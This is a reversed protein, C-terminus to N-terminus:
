KWEVKQVLARAEALLGGLDSWADMAPTIPGFGSVVSTVNVGAVSPYDFHFAAFEAQIAPTFMVEIFAQASPVSDATRLVGVATGNTHVPSGSLYHVRASLQPQRSLLQALYYHNVVGLACDGKAVAEIVGTDGGIPDVALNEVWGRLVREAEASGWWRILSSVLALNYPHEGRRLCVRGAWPSEALSKYSQIQQPQVRAPDYVITRARYTVAVWDATRMHNPVREAAGVAAGGPLFLDREKLDQLYVLDKVFIVDAPSTAGEEQLRKQLDGYGASVVEVPRGTRAQFARIAGQLSEPNRDTYVMLPTVAANGALIPGFFTGSIMMGVTITWIRKNMM